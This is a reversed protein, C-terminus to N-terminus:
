LAFHSPGRDDNDTKGVGNVPCPSHLAQGCPQRTLSVFLSPTRVSAGREKRGENKGHRTGVMKEKRKGERRVTQEKNGEESQKLTLLLGM